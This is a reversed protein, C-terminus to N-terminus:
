HCGRKKHKSFLVLGLVAVVVAWMPESMMVSPTEVSSGSLFLEQLSLLMDEQEKTEMVIFATNKSLMRRQMSQKIYAIQYESTDALLTNKQLIFADVYQNGTFGSYDAGTILTENRDSNVVFGNCYLTEYIYPEIVESLRQSDSFRYPTLSHDDNLRYYYESEPFSTTMRTKELPVARNMNDTVLVIIPFNGAEDVVQASSFIKHMAYAANFGGITNVPARTASLDTVENAQYSVAYYRPVINKSEAYRKATELHNL